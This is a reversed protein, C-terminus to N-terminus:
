RIREYAAEADQVKPSGAKRIAEKTVRELADNMANKAAEYVECAQGFNLHQHTRWIDALSFAVRLNQNETATTQQKM